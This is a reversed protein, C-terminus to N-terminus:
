SANRMQHFLMTHFSLAMQEAAQASWGEEELQRRYGLTAEDIPTLMERMQAAMEAITHAAESPEPM